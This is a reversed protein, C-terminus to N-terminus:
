FTFRTNREAVADIAKQARNATMSAATVAEKIQAVRAVYRSVATETSAGAVLQERPLSIVAYIPVMTNQGNPLRIEYFYDTNQGQTQAVVDLQEPLTVRLGGVPMFSSDEPNDLHEGYRKQSEKVDFIVAYNAKDQTGAIERKIDPLDRATLAGHRQVLANLTQLSSVLETAAPGADPDALVMRSGNLTTPAIVISGSAGFDQALRADFEENYRELSMTDLDAALAALKAAANDVPEKLTAAQAIQANYGKNAEAASGVFKGVGLGFVLAGIAALALTKTSKNPPPPLPEDDKWDKVERVPADEAEAVAEAYNEHAYAAVPAAVPPAGVATVGHPTAGEPMDHDVPTASEADAPPEPVVEPEPADQIGLRAKLDSSGVDRRRTAM